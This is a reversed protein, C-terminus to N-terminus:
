GDVFLHSLSPCVVPIRFASHVQSIPQSWYKACWKPLCLRFLCTTATQLLALAMRNQSVDTSTCLLQASFTRRSAALLLQWSFGLREIQMSTQDIVGHATTMDSSSEM